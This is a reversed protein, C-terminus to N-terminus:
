VEKSQAVRFNAWYKQNLDINIQNISKEIIAECLENVDFSRWDPFQALVEEFFSLDEKYDLTVRIREANVSPFKYSVPDEQDFISGWGTELKSIEVFKPAARSLADSSYGWCNMGIPLGETKALCCGSSIQAYVWRMAQFSCLLDDGDIAVVGTLSFEKVVQSHRFPINEADGYFLHIENKKVFYEFSDNIEKTGTAIIVCAEQREIETSFEQLITELLISLAINDGIKVFHKNRLRTSGMRATIILGIM